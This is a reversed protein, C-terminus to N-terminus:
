PSRGRLAERVASLEYEDVGADELHKLGIGTSSMIHRVMQGDHHLRWILSLACAFGSYWDDPDVPDGTSAVLQIPQPPEHNRARRTKETARM